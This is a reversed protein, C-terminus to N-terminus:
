YFAYIVTGRSPKFRDWKDAVGGLQEFVAGVQHQQPLPWVRFGLLAWGMFLRVSTLFPEWLLGLDSYPGPQLSFNILFQWFQPGSAALAELAMGSSGLDRTLASCPSSQVSTQAGSASTKPVKEFGPFDGGSLSLQQTVAKSMPAMGWRGKDRRGEELM